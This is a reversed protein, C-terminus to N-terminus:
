RNAQQCEEGSVWKLGQKPDLTLADIPLGVGADAPLYKVSLQVLDITRLSAQQMPSKGAVTDRWSSHERKARASKLLIFESAVQTQGIAFFRTERDESYSSVDIGFTSAAKDLTIRAEVIGIGGKDDFGAFVAHWHQDSYSRIQRWFGDKDMVIMHSITDKANQAWQQGVKSLFSPNDRIRSSAVTQFAARADASADWHRERDGAFQMFTMGTFAFVSKNGFTTLKCATIPPGGNEEVMKSDAAITIFQSTVGFVIVTNSRQGQAPSCPSVICLTGLMLLLGRRVGKAFSRRRMPDNDRFRM